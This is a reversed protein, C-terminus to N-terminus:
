PVTASWPLADGSEFGDAFIRTCLNPITLSSVANTAAGPGTMGGVTVWGDDFFALGRHDMTPTRAIGLSDDVQAWVQTYPDFVIVQDLPNSPSGNYGNGSFNYSNDTGGVFLMSGCGLDSQGNAARYTQSFPSPGPQSWTIQTTDNADIRGVVTEQQIPFNGGARAGDIFLLRDGILGGAHGFRGSIPIPTAQQWGDTVTDYVQVNTVNSGAPGHWGSVLYIYRDQYVGVVMDDVETPVEALEIYSDGVPDYRFLRHETTEFINAITYGGILYVEGAVTVASAAIKPDGNLLPADAIQQWSGTGPSSLKYAAATGTARNLPDTMGMFSYLTCGGQDCTSTVANNTVPVPYATLAAWSGTLTQGAASTSMLLLFALVQLTRM